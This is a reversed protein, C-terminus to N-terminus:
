YNIGTNFTTQPPSKEQPIKTKPEDCALNPNLISRAPTSPLQGFYLKEVRDISEKQQLWGVQQSEVRGLVDTTGKLM